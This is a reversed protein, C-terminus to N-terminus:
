ISEHPSWLKIKLEKAINHLLHMNVLNMTVLADISSMGKSEYARVVGDWLEQETMNENIFKLAKAPGVGPVGIINDVKDGLLCQLYPWTKATKATTEIWKMEINYHSSEYYNFHQGELSHLVDKDIACLIYKEPNQKKLYVVIDDAEWKTSISGPYKALLDHKLQGLGAPPRGTRNAKYDEKVTYRFNDRGGTFHLELSTCGTKDLIRQLKEEAKALALIPCTEYLIMNEKDFQPDNELADKEIDSLFEDGLVEGGVETNLCAIYAVTDADILAIKDNKQPMVKGDIDLNIDVFVEEM